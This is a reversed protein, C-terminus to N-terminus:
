GDPLVGRPAKGVRTCVMSSAAGWEMRTARCLPIGIFRRPHGFFLPYLSPAALPTCAAEKPSGLAGRRRASGSCGRIVRSRGLFETLQRLSILDNGREGAEFGHEPHALVKLKILAGAMTRPPM